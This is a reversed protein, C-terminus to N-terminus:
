EGVLGAEEARDIADVLWCLAVGAGVVAAVVFSLAILVRRVTM